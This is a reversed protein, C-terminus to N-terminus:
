CVARPAEAIEDSTAHECHALWIFPISLAQIVASAVYSAPYGWADALRGLM